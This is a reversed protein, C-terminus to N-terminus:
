LEEVGCLPLDGRRELDQLLVAFRANVMHPHLPLVEVLTPRHAKVCKSPRELLNTLRERLNGTRGAVICHEEDYLVFLGCKECLQDVGRSTFEHPGDKLYRQTMSGKEASRTFRM